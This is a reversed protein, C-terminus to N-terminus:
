IGLVNKCSVMKNLFRSLSSSSSGLNWQSVMVTGLRSRLRAPHLADRELLVLPVSVEGRGTDV